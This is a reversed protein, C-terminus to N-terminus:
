QISVVMPREAATHGAAAGTTKVEHVAVPAGGAEYRGGAERARKIENILARANVTPVHEQAASPPEDAILPPPAPPSAADRPPSISVLQLQRDGSGGRRRAPSAGRSVADREMAARVDRLSFKALHDPAPAALGPTRKAVADAIASRAASTDKLFVTRERASHGRRDALEQELAASSPVVLTRQPAPSAAHEPSQTVGPPSAASTVRIADVGPAASRDYKKDIDLRETLVTSRTAPSIPTPPKKGDPAAAPGRTSPPPSVPRRGPPARGQPKPQEKVAGRVVLGVVGGDHPARLSSLRTTDDLADGRALAFALNTADFGPYTGRLDDEARRLTARVDGVTEEPRLEHVQFEAGDAAFALSVSLADRFLRAVPPADAGFAVEDALCVGMVEDDRRMRNGVFLRQSEVPVKSFEEALEKIRAITMLALNESHLRYVPRGKVDQVVVDLTRLQHAGASGTTTSEDADRAPSSSTIRHTVARALVPSGLGNSVPQQVATRRLELRSDNPVGCDLLTAADTLPHGAAGVLLLSRWESSLGLAGAAIRKVDLVSTASFRLKAITAVREEDSGPSVCDAVHVTGSM